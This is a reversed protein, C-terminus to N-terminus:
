TAPNSRKTKASGHGTHKLLPEHVERAIEGTDKYVIVEDYQGTRKNLSRVVDQLRGNLRYTEVKHWLKAFYKSKSATFAIGSMTAQGSVVATFPQMTIKRATSGCNPCPKRPNNLVKRSAPFTYDCGEGGCTIYKLDNDTKM